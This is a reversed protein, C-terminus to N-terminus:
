SEAFRRDVVTDEGDHGSGAGPESLRARARALRSRVTGVPVGLVDAAAEYTLGGFVCLALVDRDRRPLRAVSAVVDRMRREADLRSDADPEFPATAEDAPLRGLASRYRRLSRRRNRAVNLAVGHLWAVAKGPEVARRRRWAELFVVSTLDEAESWDGTLRFLFNYIRRAHRAYLDGLAEPDGAVTRRWLADDSDAAGM